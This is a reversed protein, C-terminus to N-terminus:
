SGGVFKKGYMCLFTLPLNSRKFVKEIQFSLRIYNEIWTTLMM